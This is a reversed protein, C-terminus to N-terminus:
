ATVMYRVVASATASWVDLTGSQRMSVSLVSGASVLIGAGSLDVSGDGEPDTMDTEDDYGHGWSVWVDAAAPQIALTCKGSVVVQRSEYATSSLADSTVPAYPYLTIAAM